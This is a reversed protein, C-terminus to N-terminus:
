NSLEQCSIQLYWNSPKSSIPTSIPASWVCTKCQLVACSATWSLQTRLLLKVFEFSKRPMTRTQRADDVFSLIM